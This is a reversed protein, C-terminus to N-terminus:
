KPPLARHRALKVATLDMLEGLLQEELPPDGAGPVPAPPFDSWADSMIKFERKFEDVYYKQILRDLATCANAMMRDRVEPNEVTPFEAKLLDQHRRLLKDHHDEVRKSMKQPLDTMLSEREKDFVQMFIPMDKSAQESFATSVVPTIGKVLKQIETSYVNADDTASKSLAAVLRTKYEPSNVSQALAIFRWGAIIVFVLFALMILRRTKRSRELAATLGASRRQLEDLRSALQEMETSGSAGTTRDPTTSM